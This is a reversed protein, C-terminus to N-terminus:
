GYSRRFTERGLPTGLAIIVSGAPLPQDAAPLPEVRGDRQVAIVNLGTRESIGADRLSRGALSRPLPIYYLDVGEGLVVPERDQVLSLVSHVGLSAYSLVFDAGARQIAEVNREYTVRSFIRADPNLRRCYVTLYINMADDHTTMLVSPAAEVGAESLVRRDAADGVILRDAVRRAKEALAPDREVIVVPVERARLAQAASRGVKGGGLVIVPNPSVNYIVLLENLEDIQEPTGLVVPVCMATLVMSPTAPLLRGQHWVGIVTIGLEDRLGSEALTKGQLPTDHVPFEALLLGHFRGIVNARSLGASVRNALHEGLRRKLPLVHTAGSLELIDVSDDSEALAVIPISEARERVTLIINSNEPDTSNAFVLKARAVGAATYTDCSDIDGCVVPLGADRMRIAVEADPELVYGPVGAVELRRVLALAIPDNACIIVHGSVEPPVSRLARIRARSRQELWPTYVTRIFLFPLLILLLVVGTLLVVTSFVRGLDSHFTIDGFGLTTMVTLTWYVGTYWSHEHGEYLMVVHFLWAYLLIIGVLLGLYKLFPVVERRLAPEGALLSALHSGVTKVPTRYGRM